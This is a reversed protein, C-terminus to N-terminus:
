MIIKELSKGAFNVGGRIDQRTDLHPQLGTPVGLLVSPVRGWIFAKLDSFALPFNVKQDCYIKGNEMSKQQSLSGQATGHGRM